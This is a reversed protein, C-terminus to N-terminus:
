YHVFMLLYIGKGLFVFFAPYYVYQVTAGNKAYIGRSQFARNRHNNQSQQSKKENIIQKNALTKM